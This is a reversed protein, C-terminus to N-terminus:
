AKTKTRRSHGRWACVMGLSGYLALKFYHGQSVDRWILLAGLAVIGFVIMWFVIKVRVPHKAHARALWTETQKAEDM